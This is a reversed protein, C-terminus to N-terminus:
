PSYKITSIVIEQVHQLRLVTAISSKHLTDYQSDAYCCLACVQARQVSTVCHSDAAASIFAYALM